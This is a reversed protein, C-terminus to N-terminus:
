LYFHGTSNKLRELMTTTGYPPPSSYKRYQLKECMEFSLDYKRLGICKGLKPLCEDHYNLMLNNTHENNNLEYENDIESTKQEKGLDLLQNYSANIGIEM